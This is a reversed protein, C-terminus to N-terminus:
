VGRDRKEKHREHNRGKRNSKSRYITGNIIKDKNYWLIQKKEIYLIMQDCGQLFQGIAIAKYTDNRV